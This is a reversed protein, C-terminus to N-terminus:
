VKRWLAQTWHFACGMLTVGPLVSRVAAWMAKEFDLVVRDVSPQDPLVDLIAKLVQNCLCFIFDICCLCMYLSKAPISYYM